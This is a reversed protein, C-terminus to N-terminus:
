VPGTQALKAAEAELLENLTKEISDRIPETLQGKIITNSPMWGTITM